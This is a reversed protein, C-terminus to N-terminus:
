GRARLSLAASKIKAAELEGAAGWGPVGDAVAPRFQEYLGFARARLEAPTMSKALTTMADTVEGLAAGFKSAIYKEVSAPSIAKGGADLARPGDPTHVISLRKGMFDIADPQRTRDPPTSGRDEAIGLRKAKAAAARGCISRGLTLALARDHGLQEAVITAWLTLVPARNIRIVM